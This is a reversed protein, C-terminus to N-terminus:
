RKRKMLCFKTKTTIGFGSASIVRGNLNMSFLTTGRQLRTSLSLMIAKLKKLYDVLQERSWADYNDSM